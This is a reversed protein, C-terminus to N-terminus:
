ELQKVVFNCEAIGEKYVKTFDPKRTSAAEYYSIAANLKKILAQKTVMGNNLDIKVQERYVTALTAYSYASFPAITIAHFALKEALAFQQTYLYLLSLNQYGDLTFTSCEVCFDNKKCYVGHPNLNLAYLYKNEIKEFDKSLTNNKEALFFLNGAQANFETVVIFKNLIEKKREDMLALFGAFLPAAFSSGVLKEPQMITFHTNLSQSFNQPHMAEAIYATGGNDTKKLAVSETQFGANYVNPVTSPCYQFNADNGVSTVVLTREALPKIKSCVYCSCNETAIETASHVKKPLKKGWSLNVIDIGIKEIEEIALDIFEPEPVGSKGIDFLYLEAMPAVELILLAVTNGHSVSTKETNYKRHLKTQKHLTPYSMNFGIDLVAIKVGEGKKNKEHAFAISHWFDSDKNFTFSNTILSYLEKKKSSFLNRFFDMNGNKGGTLNRKQLNWNLM